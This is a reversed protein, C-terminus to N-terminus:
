TQLTQAEFHQLEEESFFDHYCVVGTELNPFLKRYEGFNDPFNDGEFFYEIKRFPRGNRELLTVKEVLDFAFSDRTSIYYIPMKLSKEWASINEKGEKDKLLEAAAVEEREM